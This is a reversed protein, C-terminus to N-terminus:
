IFEINEGGTFHTFYNLNIFNAVIIEKLESPMNNFFPYFIERWFFWIRNFREDLWYILDNDILYSSLVSQDDQHYKMYNKINNDYLDCMLKAHYKPQYIVLGGNIHDNYNKDEGSLKYWDRGSKEYGYRTQINERWEYNGMYKRENVCAVKGEPIENFPLGPSNINIFIDSDISVVYDYEKFKDALLLRQWFFKKKDMNQEKRILDTLIILEYGQKKCYFELNKKFKSEFSMVYKDGIVFVVVAVKM